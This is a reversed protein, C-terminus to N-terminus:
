VSLHMSMMLWCLTATLSISAAAMAHAAFRYWAGSMHTPAALFPSCSPLHGRGTIGHRALSDAAECRWGMGRM